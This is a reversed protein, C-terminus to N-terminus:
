RNNRLSVKGTSPDYQYLELDDSNMFGAVEELTEPYKDNEAHYARVADQLSKLNAQAAAVKSKEYSGILGDAVEKVPDKKCSITLSAFFILFLLLATKITQM